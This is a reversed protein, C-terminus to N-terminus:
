EPAKEPDLHLLEDIPQYGISRYLADTGQNEADTFLCPSAGLELAEATVATVLGAAFGHRRHEDPVYVLGIRVQNAIPRATQACAVPRGEHELIRIRGREIAKAARTNCDDPPALGTDRGFAEFWSALIPQDAEIAKRVRPDTTTIPGGEYRYLRLPMKVELPRGGLARNAMEAAPQLERPLVLSGTGGVANLLAILEVGSPTTCDKRCAVLRPGSSSTACIAVMEGNRELIAHQKDEGKPPSFSIPLTWYDTPIDVLGVVAELM